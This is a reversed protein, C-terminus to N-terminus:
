LRPNSVKKLSSNKGGLNMTLLFLIYCYVLCDMGEIWCSTIYERSSQDFNYTSYCVAWIYEPSCQCELLTNTDIWAYSFGVISFYFNENFYKVLKCNFTFLITLFLILRSLFQQCLLCRCQEEFFFYFTNLSYKTKRNSEFVESCSGISQIDVYFDYGSKDQNESSYTTCCIQNTKQIRFTIILYVRASHIKVTWALCTIISLWRGFLPWPNGTITNYQVLFFSM